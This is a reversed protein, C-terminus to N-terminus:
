VSTVVGVVTGDRRRGIAACPTADKLNVRAVPPEVPVVSALEIAGPDQELQWRLFREAGLRNLPHAPVATDRVASVTTVVDALAERTPRDGHVMAFAERDHAGVGVALRV